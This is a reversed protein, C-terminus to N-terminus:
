AHREGGLDSGLHDGRDVGVLDEGDVQVGVLDLAEEVHGHVVDVGRRQREGIDPAGVAGVVQAHDARVDTAHYAGAGHGLAQIIGVQRDDVLATRAGVDGRHHVDDTVDLALGAHHDIVDDVGGAGQAGGGGRQL